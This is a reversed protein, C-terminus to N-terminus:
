GFVAVSQMGAIAPTGDANWQLIHESTGGDAAHESTSRVLWWGHESFSTSLVNVHWQMSSLPVRFSLLPWVAAPLVDGCLLCEVEPDLGTRERPRVWWCLDAVGQPAEARAFRVEFHHRLFAPAHDMPVPPADALPILGDPLAYRDIALVSEIRRMFVFSATFGV